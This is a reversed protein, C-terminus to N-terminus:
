GSPVAQSWTLFEPRISFKECSASIRHRVEIPPVEAIHQLNTISSNQFINGFRIGRNKLYGGVDLCNRRRLAAFQPSHKVAHNRIGNNRAQDVHENAGATVWPGGVRSQLQRRVRSAHQGPPAPDRRLLNRAGAPVNGKPHTLHLM